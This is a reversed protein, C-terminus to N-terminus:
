EGPEEGPHEGEDQSRTYPIRTADGCAGCHLLKVKREPHLRVQANKGYALYAGCSQCMRRKLATPISVNAKMAISRALEMYRHSREPHEDFQKRAEQFLLHIRERAIGQVTNRSVM